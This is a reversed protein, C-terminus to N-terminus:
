IESPYKCNGDDSFEYQGGTMSSDGLIYSLREPILSADYSGVRCPEITVVFDYTISTMTGVQPLSYGNGKSLDQEIIMVLDYQGIDDLTTTEIIISDVFAVGRPGAAGSSEITIFDLEPEVRM